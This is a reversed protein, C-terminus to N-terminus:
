FNFLKSIKKIRKKEEKTNEEYYGYNYGYSYRSGYYYGGHKKGYGYRSKNNDVNNLVFSLNKINCEDWLYDLNQIFIRKSYGARFVYIPYDAIKLTQMADTVLGIPPNDTIIYDYETKLDEILKAMNDSLILESPNPPITGATIFHLTSLSSVNICNKYDEMGSLINSMGKTNAFIKDQDSFAKHIKPKRMDLDLVIVKKGSYAIIGALNVAVFTKGESPVTSTISILKKGKENSIFQMNTRLGRMAEALMSKPEKDVLLLSHIMGQDVHPVVGLLAVDSYKQIDAVTDINSYFLYRYAIYGLGILFGIILSFIYIQNKKPFIPIAPTRSKELIINQSVYSAKAISYQTKTEILQNYYTENISLIRQFKKLEIAKSNDLQLTLEFMFKDLQTQLQKRKTNVNSLFSRISEKLIKKQIEIQYDLQKIQGSNETYSYALQERQMLLSQLNTLLASLAGQYNSGFIDAMFLYIDIEENNQFTKNIRQLISEEYNLKGIESSLDEIKQQIIQTSRIEFSEINNEKKYNQIDNQSKFLEEELLNLQDDIYSIIKDANEQKKIKDYESFDNAVTNVVDSAKGPHSDQYKIEITKAAESLISANIKASTERIINEKGHVVFSYTEGNNMASPVNIVLDINFYPTKINTKEGSLSIKHKNTEGKFEYSVRIDENGNFSLEIHQGFLDPSFHNIIVSFPSSKYLENRLITGKFYYSIDLPLKSLASELFTTSRLFDIKGALQNFNSYLKAQDQFVDPQNETEIQIVATAEYLNPTYRLYIWAGSFFLAVSIVVVYWTKSLIYFLLSIDFDDNIKSIKKQAM